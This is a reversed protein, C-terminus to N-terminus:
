SRTHFFPMAVIRRRKLFRRGPSRLSTNLKMCTASAIRAVPLFDSYKASVICDKSLKGYTYRKELRILEVICSRPDLVLCILEVCCESHDAVISFSREAQLVVTIRHPRMRRRPYLCPQLTCGPEPAQGDGLHWSM